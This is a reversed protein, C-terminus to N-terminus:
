IKHKVLMIWEYLMLSIYAKKDVFYVFMDCLINKSFRQM